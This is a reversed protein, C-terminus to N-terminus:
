RESDRNREQGGSGGMGKMIRGSGEEVGLGEPGGGGGGWGPDGLM